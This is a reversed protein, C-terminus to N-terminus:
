LAVIRFLLSGKERYFMVMAVEGAEFGNQSIFEKWGATINFCGDSNIHYDAQMYEYGNKHVTELILKGSTLAAFRITSPLKQMKAHM